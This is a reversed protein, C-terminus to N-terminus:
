LVLSRLRVLKDTEDTMLSSALISDINEFEDNTLIPVADTVLNSASASSVKDIVDTM